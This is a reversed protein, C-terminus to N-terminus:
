HNNNAANQEIEGDAFPKLRQQQQRNREARQQDVQRQRANHRFVAKQPIEIEARFM